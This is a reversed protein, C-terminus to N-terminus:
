NIHWIHGFPFFTLWKLFCSWIFIFFTQFAVPVLLFWQWVLKRRNTQGEINVLLKNFGGQFCLYFHNTPPRPSHSSQFLWTSQSLYTFILQISLYQYNLLETKKKHSTKNELCFLLGTHFYIGHRHFIQNIIFCFVSIFM